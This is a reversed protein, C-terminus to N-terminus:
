YFRYWCMKKRARIVPAEKGDDRGEYLLKFDRKWEFLCSGSSIDAYFPNFELLYVRYPDKNKDLRLDVVYSYYPVYKLIEKHFHLISDRVKTLIEVSQFDDYLNFYAYQSIATLKKKHVFCRFEYATNVDVWPLLVIQLYRSKFWWKQYIELDSFIRESRTVIAFIDEPKKISVMTRPVDKASRSSLRFFYGPDSEQQPKMFTAFKAILAEKKKNEEETPKESTLSIHHRKILGKIFLIDDPSLPIFVAETILPYYEIGASDKIHIGVLSNYWEEYNFKWLMAYRLQLLLEEMLSKLNTVPECTSLRGPINGGIVKIKAM